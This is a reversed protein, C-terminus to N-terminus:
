CLGTGRELAFAWINLWGHVLSSANGLPLDFHCLGILAMVQEKLVAMLM